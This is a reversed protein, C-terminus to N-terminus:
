QRVDLVIRSPGALTSDAYRQDNGTLKVAVQLQGEFACSIIARSIARGPGAVTNAGTYAPKGDDDFLAIPEIRLVLYEGTRGRRAGLRM